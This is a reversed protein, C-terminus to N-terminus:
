LKTIQVKFVYDKKPGQIKWEIGEPNGRVFDKANVTKTIEDRFIDIIKELNDDASYVVSIEDKEVLKKEKRMNQIRRIVERSIGEEIVKKPLKTHLYIKGGTFYSVDYDEVTETVQLNEQTLKLGDIEISQGINLKKEYEDLNEKIKDEIEKTKEFGEKFIININGKKKNITEVTHVNTMLKVVNSLRRAATLSIDDYAYILIEDVPWRLKINNKQRASIITNIIEKAVEMDALLVEDVLGIQKPWNELCISEKPKAVVTKYARETVFPAVLNLLKMSEVYVYKLIKLGQEDDRSKIIKMYFRSVDELIFYILDRIALHYMYKDYNEEYQKIVQNFRSILWGDEINTFESIEPVLYEVHEAFRSLFVAMNDVTNIFSYAEKVSDWTFILDEWPVAQLSWVRFADAGYKEAIKDFPIFNGVSKSMKEGKEDVFFGHMMVTEYPAKNQSMVGIGLLSYFWGRTQDKGEFIFKAKEYEEGEEPKLNAQVVCGSDIWVDLVDPVRKYTKNDKKIVIKDVYPRHYDELKKPLEAFSGIVIYDTEDEQNVWIPVPIGWYRQRSICWDPANSVFDSFRARAFEPVWVTEDIEEVMKTKADSIKAFWQKMTRFILHTKCRWCHPYRHEIKGSDLLLGLETLEEIIEDNVDPVQKGEYKGADSNFKGRNDLPSFPEIDYRKGIIYDEPGHGPACHVLGSGEEMTVFEDSLVVKRQVEPRIGLPHSYEIDNLRKGSIEEVVTFSMNLKGALIDMRAKGVIWIEDSGEPIIKVYTESPHVMVAMNSILTWPTTTWIVLYTKEDGVTKFKVFISPSTKMGYELEYNAMPTECRPCYPLVSVGRYLYGNEHVKKIAGWVSELFDNTYTLYPDEFDMWVGARMFDESMKSLHETAFHKCTEIFKEVGVTEIDNKQKLKLEKEVKVEIPLGHTDYGARARVNYGKWRKYRLISDKACKNYALGPHMAGTAYPPGDCFYWKEGEKNKECVKNMIKNKKWDKLQELEKDVISM